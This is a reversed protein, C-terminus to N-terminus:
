HPDDLGGGGGGWGDGGGDGGGSWEIVSRVRDQGNERRFTRNGPGGRDQGDV